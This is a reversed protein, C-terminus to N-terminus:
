RGLNVVVKSQLVNLSSNTVLKSLNMVRLFMYLSWHFRLRFKYFKMWSFVNSFTTQFISSMKDRGWNTLHTLYKDCYGHGKIICLGYSCMIIWGTVGKRYARTCNAKTRTFCSIIGNTIEASKDIVWMWLVFGYGVGVHGHAPVM